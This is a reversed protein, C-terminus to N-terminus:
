HAGQHKKGTREGVGNITGQVLGVGHQVGIVSNAVAMGCDNHCHIGITVFGDFHEVVNQCVRGVQWPMSGGNTDCLVLCTAGADVAAECCQIAYEPDSSYGDFFHELDVMVRRGSAVLYSVTDTIMQLNEELEAKLIETVQWSHAKAVICVTPAESDLLAQVQPDDGVPVKKRRTSGFAVLKAQESGSLEVKARAFFEADKPNSGPWGAEIYDVDFSALRRCIKLKDDASASVSEGQTGDTVLIIITTLLM